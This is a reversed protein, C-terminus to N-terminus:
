LATSIYHTDHQFIFDSSHIETYCNKMKDTTQKLRYLSNECSKKVLRHIRQIRKIKETVQQYNLDKLETQVPRNTTSRARSVWHKYLNNQIFFRMFSNWFKRELLIIISLNSLNLVLDGLEWKLLVRGTITLLPPAPPIKPCHCFEHYNCMCLPSTWLTRVFPSNKVHIFRMLFALLTLIIYVQTEVSGLHSIVIVNRDNNPFKGKHSTPTSTFFFIM